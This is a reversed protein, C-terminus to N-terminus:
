PREADIRNRAEVVARAPMTEKNRRSFLSLTDGDVGTSSSGGEPVASSHIMHASCERQPKKVFDNINAHNEIRRAPYLKM